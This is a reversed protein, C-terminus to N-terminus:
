SWDRARNARVRPPGRADSGRTAPASMSLRRLASTSSRPWSFSAASRRAASFTLLRDRASRRQTSHAAQRHGKRKWLFVIREHLLHERAGRARQGHASPAARLEPLDRKLYRRVAHARRPHLVTAHGRLGLLGVCGEPGHLAGRFRRLYAARRTRSAGPTCAATDRAALSPPWRSLRSHGRQTAAAM